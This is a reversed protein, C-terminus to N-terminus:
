CAFQIKSQVEQSARWWPTKWFPRGLVDEARYGCTKLCLQNADLVIGETSLVGSFVTTQDFVARFKANAALAELESLKRRTVDTCAGVLYIRKGDEDRLPRARDYLWRTKGDPLIVRFEMDFDAGQSCAEMAATVAPIDDPHIRSIVDEAHGM